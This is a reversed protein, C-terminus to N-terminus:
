RVIVVVRDFSKILFSLMEGPRVGEFAGEVEM